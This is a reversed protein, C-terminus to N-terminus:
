IKNNKKLYDILQIYGTDNWLKFRENDDFTALTKTQGDPIFIFDWCWGHKGQLRKSIIGETISKFVVPEKGYECYALAQVFRAKRNEEGKLLKLVGKEGLTDQVYHTYAAPFGNLADIMIGTDNKVVTTKLKESAWKASYAAVEEVSDAQIEVTDMKVNDVQVGLPELVEKAQAIKAWNGTVLTIKM